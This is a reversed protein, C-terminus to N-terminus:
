GPSGIPVVFMSVAGLYEAAWLCVEVGARAVDGAYWVLRALSVVAVLVPVAAMTVPGGVSSEGVVHVVGVARVGGVGVGVGVAVVGAAAV